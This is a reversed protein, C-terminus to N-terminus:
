SHAIKCSEFSLYIELLSISYAKSPFVRDLKQRTRKGDVPCCLESEAYVDGHLDDDYNGGDDGHCCFVYHRINM